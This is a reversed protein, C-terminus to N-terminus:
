MLVLCFSCLSDDRVADDAALGYSTEAEHEGADPRGRSLRQGDLQRHEWHLGYM